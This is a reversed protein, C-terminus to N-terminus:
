SIFLTNSSTDYACDITNTVRFKNTDSAFLATLGDIRGRVSKHTIVRHEHGQYVVSIATDTLLYKTINSRAGLTLIGYRIESPVITRKETIVTAAVKTVNSTLNSIIIDGNADHSLSIEIALTYM